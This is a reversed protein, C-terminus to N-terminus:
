KPNVALYATSTLDSSNWGGGLAKILLVSAVLRRNLIDVATRENNLASAQVVVVNLYNVTGAKYQNTTLAVSRRASQVAEDQVDAEQELIRMAALNDEVEKFGTLVTQRYAAVNADYVARAQETQARRLGGDFLTQALQPGVAWFRAPVTLWNSWSSSQFGGSASLTLSPYYAAIAVGIQANATAVLREAAAVDPRRELLDSPVGVPVAPIAATLPAPAITLESAPKGILLAIAHEFQARQVEVDIAQAQTSKLQTQAQIVDVMAVIGAAYQNQTLQLSKEYAAATDDFLQKQTDLARLQIYDQALEAQASLRAAELDAASAQASAENSEVTRRVKGWLDPEWAADLTLQYSNQIGPKISQSQSNSFGTPSHSRSESASASVTPFYAARASQVLARAQRYQAEAQALNQNSINVQEELSNLLPDNYAEWWKGKIEQDRPQAPKWGDMEKFAAPAEVAPRVYDPGVTCAALLMLPAALAFLNMDHLKM